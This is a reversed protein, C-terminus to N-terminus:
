DDVRYHPLDVLPERSCAHRADDQCDPPVFETVQDDVRQFHCIVLEAHLFDVAEEDSYVRVLVRFHVSLVIAGLPDDTVLKEFGDHLHSHFTVDLKARGLTFSLGHPLKPFLIELRVTLLGDFLVRIHVVLVFPPLLTVPEHLGIVDKFRVSLEQHEYEVFICGPVDLRSLPDAHIDL